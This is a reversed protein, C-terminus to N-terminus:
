LVLTRHRISGRIMGAIEAADVLLVGPLTAWRELREPTMPARCTRDHLWPLALGVARWDRLALIGAFILLLTKAHVPKWFLQRHLLAKRASPRRRFVAVTEAWSPQERVLQWLGPERVEHCVVADSAFTPEAGTDIIRWALDTDEARAFGENFGGVREVDAKLFFANATAFWFANSADVSPIYSFPGLKHEEGRIPRVRGAVVRRGPRNMVELGAVLWGPSPVCDDDTFAIIPASAARWALNRGAAAGSGNGRLTVLRLSTSKQLGKLTEPTDDISGDDVIIVEFSGPDLTQAELGAILRPLLQARNRTSVCVSVTPVIAETM